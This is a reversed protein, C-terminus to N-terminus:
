RGALAAGVEAVDEGVAGVGGAEISRSCRTASTRASSPIIIQVELQFNM